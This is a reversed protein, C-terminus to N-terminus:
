VSSDRHLADLVAAAHYSSRVFPACKAALFGLELAKKEIKEFEEPTVFRSVELSQQTPRLYQGVTLLECDAKRLDSMLEVVEEFTEGVGVMFGSKTLISKNKKKIVKFLNLSRQYDAQPRVVPYLREITEVNHNFVDPQAEVVINISKLDGGFDPTLVEITADRKERVAQIVSAFHFAGGDALDDRTVSTVVVHRLNLVKVAEAIRHPEDAEVPKPVGHNVGCFSCNRTCTDGLIMFTATQSGFCEGLNPCKANECVTTLNLHALLKRVQNAHGGSAIKKKLFKPYGKPILRENTM